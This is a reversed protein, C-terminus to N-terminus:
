GGDDVAVVDANDAHRGVRDLVTAGLVDLDIDMEDMFLHRQSLNADQMYGGIMLASINHCLVGDYLQTLQKSVNPYTTKKDKVSM